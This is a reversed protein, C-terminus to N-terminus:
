VIGSYRAWDPAFTLVSRILWDKSYVPWGEFGSERAWTLDKGAVGPGESHTIILGPPKGGSAFGSAALSAPPMTAPDPGPLVVGGAVQLLLTLNGSIKDAQAACPSLLCPIGCLVSRGQSLEAAALLLLVSCCCCVAHPSLLCPIGCLM